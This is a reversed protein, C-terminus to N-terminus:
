IKKNIRIILQGGFYLIYLSLCYVAWVMFREPESFYSFISRLVDCPFLFIEWSNWRDNLGTVVGLAALPIVAVTFFRAATKNFSSKIVKAMQNLLFVFSVWGLAGYIFFIIIQWANELCINNEAGPCYDNLHRIDTILYASNPFFLLWVFGLALFVFYKVLRRGPAQIIRRMALACLLPVALLLINWAFFVVSYDNIAIDSLKKTMAHRLHRIINL